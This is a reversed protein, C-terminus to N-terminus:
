VDFGLIDIRSREVALWDGPMIQATGLAAALDPATMSTRVGLTGIGIDLLLETYLAEYPLQARETEWTLVDVVQGYAHPRTSPREPTHGAEAFLGARYPPSQLRISSLLFVLKAIGNRGALDPAVIHHRDVVGLALAGLLGSHTPRLVLLPLYRRGDAHLAGPVVWEFRCPLALQAINPFHM